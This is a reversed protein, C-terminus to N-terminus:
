TDEHRRYSEELYAEEGREHAANEEQEQITLGAEREEDTCDCGHDLHFGCNGCLGADDCIGGNAPSEIWSDPTTQNANM